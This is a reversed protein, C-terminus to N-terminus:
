RLILQWPPAPDKGGAPVDSRPAQFPGATIYIREGDRTFDTDVMYFDLGPRYSVQVEARGSTLDAPCSVTTPESDFMGVALTLQTLQLDACSSYTPMCGPNKRPDCPEFVPSVLTLAHQATPSCGGTLSSVATWVLACGLWTFRMRLNTVCAWAPFVPLRLPLLSNGPALPPKGPALPPKGPALPSTWRAVPSKWRAVPPTWRAVPSKWRAVPPTWRAVPPTWRAVPPTWRAVPPTWRAVPSKWRAM